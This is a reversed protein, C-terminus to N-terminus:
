ETLVIRLLWLLIAISICPMPYRIHVWSFEHVEVSLITNLMQSFTTVLMWMQGLNRYYFNANASHEPIPDPLNAQASLNFSSLICLGGLIFHKM